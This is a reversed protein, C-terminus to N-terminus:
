RRGCLAQLKFYRNGGFLLWGSLLLRPVNPMDCTQCMATASNALNHSSRCQLLLKLRSSPLRNQRNGDDWLWPFALHFFCKSQREERKKQQAQNCRYEGLFDATWHRIVLICLNEELSLGVFREALRLHFPFVNEDEERLWTTSRGCATLRKILSEEFVRGALFIQVGM